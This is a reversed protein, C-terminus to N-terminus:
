DEDAPQLTSKLRESELVQAGSSVVTEGETLGDLVELADPASAGIHVRRRTFTNGDAVYVWSGAGELLVATRPIVLTQSSEISIVFRALMQPHLENRADEVAVRVTFGRTEPDASRSIGVVHGTFTRGPYAATEVRVSAGARVQALESEPLVALGWIRARKELARATEDLGLNALQADAQAASARAQDRDARAADLDQQSAVGDAALRTLRAYRSEALERAADASEAASLATLEEPIWPKAALTGTLTLTRGLARREVRTTEIGATHVGEASLTVSNSPEPVPGADRADEDPGCGALLALAVVVALLGGRKV